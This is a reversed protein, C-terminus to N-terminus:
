FKESNEGNEGGKKGRELIPPKTCHERTEHGTDRAPKNGQEKEREPEKRKQAKPAAIPESRERLWLCSIKKYLRSMKERKHYSSKLRRTNQPVCVCLGYTWPSRRHMRPFLEATNFANYVGEQNKDLPPKGNGRAGRRDDGCFLEYSVIPASHANERASDPNKTKAQAEKQSRSASAVRGCFFKLFNEQSAAATM